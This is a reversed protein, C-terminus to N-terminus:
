ALPSVKATTNFAISIREGRGFFPNVYHCLWAPFLLAQGAEPPVVRKGGHLNGPRPDMFEICGNDRREPDRDGVDVYFVGSWVVGPHVHPKNFDGDRSVNAWSGGFFAPEVVCDPYSDCIQFYSMEAALALLEAALRRMTEDRTDFLDGTSHWGGFNSLKMGTDRSELDLVYAKVRALFEPTAIGLRRSLLPTTFLPEPRDTPAAGRRYVFKPFQM